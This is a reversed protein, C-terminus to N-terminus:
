ESIIHNLFLDFKVWHCCSPKDHRKDKSQNYQTDWFCLFFLCGKDKTNHLKESQGGIVTAQESVMLVNECHSYTRGGSAHLMGVSSWCGSPTFSCMLEKQGRGALHFWRQPTYLNCGSDLKLHVCVEPGRFCCFFVIQLFMIVQVQGDFHHMSPLLESSLPYLRLGFCSSWFWYLKM